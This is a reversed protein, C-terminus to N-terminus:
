FFWVKNRIIPIIVIFVPIIIFIFIIKIWRYKKNKDRIIDLGYYFIYAVISWAIILLFIISFLKILVSEGTLYIHLFDKWYVKDAIISTIKYVQTITLKALFIIVPKYAILLLVWIRKSIGYFYFHKKDKEDFFDINRFINFSLYSFLVSLMLGIFTVSYFKFDLSLINIFIFFPLILLFKILITYMLVTYLKLNKISYAIVGVSIAIILANFIESIIGYVWLQFDSLFIGSVFELKEELDRVFGSFLRIYIFVIFLSFLAVFVHNKKIKM